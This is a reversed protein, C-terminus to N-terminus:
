TLLLASYQQSAPWCVKKGDILLEERDAKARILRKKLTNCSDHLKTMGTMAARAQTKSEQLRTHTGIQHLNDRSSSYVLTLQLSM